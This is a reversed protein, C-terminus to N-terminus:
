RPVNMVDCKSKDPVPRDKNIEKIRRELEKEFKLVEEVTPTFRSKDVQDFIPLAYDTSFIVGKFQGGDIFTTQESIKKTVQGFATVSIFLLIILLTKM